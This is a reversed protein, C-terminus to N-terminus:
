KHLRSTRSITDTLRVPLGAILPLMGPLGSSKMDHEQLWKIIQSENADSSLGRNSFNYPNDKAVVWLIQEQHRKAFEESRVMIANYKPVNNALVYLADVFPEQRSRPDEERIIRCRRKRERSCIECELIQMDTWQAGRSRMAHWQESQLMACAANGCPVPDQESLWSGVHQTPFGSLFNYQEESLAGM